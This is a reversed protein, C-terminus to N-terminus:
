AASTAPVNAARAAAVVPSGLLKTRLADEKAQLADWDADTPGSPSNYVALAWQVFAAIDEGAQVVLPTLQLAALIFPM